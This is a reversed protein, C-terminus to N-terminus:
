EHRSTLEGNRYLALGYYSHAWNPYPTDALSTVILVIPYVVQPIEHGPTLRIPRGPVHHHTRARDDGHAHIAGIDGTPIFICTVPINM